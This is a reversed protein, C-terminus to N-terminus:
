DQGLYQDFFDLIEQGDGGKNHFYVNDLERLIFKLDEAMSSNMVIPGQFGESRMQIAVKNGYFMKPPYNSPFGLNNMDYEGMMQYDLVAGELGEGLKRSEQLAAYGNEAEVVDYRSELLQKLKRLDSPEDDAILITKEM